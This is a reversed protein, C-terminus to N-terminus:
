LRTAVAAANAGLSGQDGVIRLLEEREPGWTPGGNAEAALALVRDAFGPRAFVEQPHALCGAIELGARFVDADRPMAAFLAARLVDAPESPPPPAHGNRAADIEALRARDGAVTARYWPALESETAARWADALAAPDAGHERVVDRLRVTHALGLAIGRGVSPNTCACADAVSVVGTAWPAPDRYRDTVGAMPLVGSTPEGDLWHAHSPCARLLATWVDPHRLRKLPRDGASVYVSVSWTDNDAPLTLISFSGVPTLLPARPAPAALGRFFRTYYLYGCDSSEERPPEAGAAALLQPLRSGRGMADIVLDAALTEGDATRVGAVHPRGNSRRMELGTVTVGRRVTLGPQAAAARAMVLELTTRRGTVTTFREDGPRPDRDAISPPMGSLADFRLAGAAVFADRVDPLEADLLHRGRPQLYHAQNFQAVGRREWGEWAADPSDPVPAPDRELLTVHHGDRSLLLGAALGCVGAGLVIIPPM